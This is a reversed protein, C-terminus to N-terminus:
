FHWGYGAGILALATLVFVAAVAALGRRRVAPSARWLWPGGITAVLVAGIPAALFGATLVGMWADPPADRWVLHLPSFPPNCFIAVVVLGTAVAALPRAIRDTPHNM